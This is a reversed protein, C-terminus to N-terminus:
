PEHIEEPWPLVDFGERLAATRLREDLCVFGAGRTVEESWDLAAALQLADAASLAHLGLLRIARERLGEAPEIEICLRWLAELRSRALKELHQDVGGRHAARAVASACEV